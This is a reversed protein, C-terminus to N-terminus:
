EQIRRKIYEGHRVMRSDVRVVGDRVAGMGEGEVRGGDGEEVRGGGEAGGVETGMRVTSISM